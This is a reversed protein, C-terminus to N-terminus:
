IPQFLKPRLNFCRYRKLGWGAETRPGAENFLLAFDEPILIFDEGMAVPVPMSYASRTHVPYRVDILRQINRLVIHLRM